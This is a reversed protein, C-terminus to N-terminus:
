GQSSGSVEPKRGYIFRYVTYLHLSKDNFEKKILEFLAKEQETTYNLVRTYLAASHAEIAENMHVREFRGLEKLKQDKTWPGIPVKKIEERVDVFGAEEMWGKQLRAVNLPKGFRTSIETMTECWTKTWRARELHPDDDSFIWADYEQAEVWGGPRLHAYAQAYLRPWDGTSGNLSRWHVFDFRERGAEGGGFEWEQEFDDVYFRVNPPVFAPQIPSLDTGVIQAAPLQDALEIAWIGTGTGLDLVRRPSAVPALHLAGGLCLRYIHHQLDLRDQEREDNPIVYSGARYAHYRRGNEYQYDQISSRISTSDSGAHSSYTSDGSNAPADDDPTEDIQLPTHNAPPQSPEPSQPSAM